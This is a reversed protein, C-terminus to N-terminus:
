SFENSRRKHGWDVNQTFSKRLSSAASHRSVKKYIQVKTAVYNKLPLNKFSKKQVFVHLFPKRIQPEM